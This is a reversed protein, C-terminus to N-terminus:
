NQRERQVRRKKEKMKASLPCDLSREERKERRERHLVCWYFV